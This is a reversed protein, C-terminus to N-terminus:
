FIDALNVRFEPDKPKNHNLLFDKEHAPSSFYYIFVRMLVVSATKFPTHIQHYM